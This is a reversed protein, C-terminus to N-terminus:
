ARSRDMHGHLQGGRGPHLTAVFAPFGQLSPNIEAGAFNLLRAVTPAATGRAPARGIELLGEGPDLEARTCVSRLGSM